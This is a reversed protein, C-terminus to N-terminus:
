SNIILIKKGDILCSNAEYVPCLSEVEFFCNNLYPNYKVQVLSKDNAFEKIETGVIYAHVNKRKSKLVRERGAQSVRFTVSDLAISDAHRIVKWVGNVKKQVSIKKKHLNFYCRTDM